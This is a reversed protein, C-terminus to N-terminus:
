LTPKDMALREVLSARRRGHVLITSWSRSSYSVLGEIKSGVGVSAMQSSSCRKRWQFRVAACLLGGNRGLSIGDPHSTDEKNISRESGSINM